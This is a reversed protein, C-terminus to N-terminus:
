LFTCSASGLIVIHQHVVLVLIDFAVHAGKRLSVCHLVGKDVLVDFFLPLPVLLEVHLRALPLLLALVDISILQKILNLLPLPLFVKGLVTDLFLLFLELEMGFRWLFDAPVFLLLALLLHLFIPLVEIPQPLPPLLSRLRLALCAQRLASYFNM